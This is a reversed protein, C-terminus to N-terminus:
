YMWCLERSRSIAVYLLSDNKARAIDDLDVITRRYSKGQSSHATSAYPSGINVFQFGAKHYKAWERPHKAAIAENKLKELEGDCDIDLAAKTGDKREVLVINPKWNIITVVENNEVIACNDSDVVKSVKVLEGPQPPMNSTYGYIVKRYDAAMKNVISHRYAIACFSNLEEHNKKIFARSETVAEVMELTYQELLSSNWHYSRVDNALSKQLPCTARLNESLHLHPINKALQGMTLKDRDGLGPIAELQAHDGVFIWRVHPYSAAIDDIIIPSTYHAEDLIVLKFPVIKQAKRKLVQQEIPTAVPQYGLLSHITTVYHNTKTCLDSVLETTPAAIAVESPQFNMTLLWALFTTTKAAGAVGTLNIFQSEQKQWWNTLQKIIETQETTLNINPNSGLLQFLQNQNQSPLNNLM